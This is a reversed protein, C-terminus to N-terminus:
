RPRAATDCRHKSNFAIGLLRDLAGPETFDSHKRPTHPGKEGVRVFTAREWVTSALEKFDLFEMLNRERGFVLGGPDRAREFLNDIWVLLSGREYLDLGNIEAAELARPLVFSWFTTTRHNELYPVVYGRFDDITDAAALYVIQDFELTPLDVLLRDAVLAGMSHAVLILDVDKRPNGLSGFYTQLRKFLLRAAGESKLVTGDDDETNAIQSRPAAVLDARRKM